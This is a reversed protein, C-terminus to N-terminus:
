TRNRIADACRGAGDSEGNVYNDARGEERGTYPPRGKFLAYRDQEIEDCVNACAEREIATAAQWAQWAFSFMCEYPVGQEGQFWKEFAERQNM